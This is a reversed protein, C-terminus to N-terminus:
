QDSINPKGDISSEKSLIAESIASGMLSRPSPINPNQTIFIIMYPSDNWQKESYSYSNYPVNLYAPKVCGLLSM